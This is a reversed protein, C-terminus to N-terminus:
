GRPALVPCKPSSSSVTERKTFTPQRSSYRVIPARERSSATAPTRPDTTRVELAM